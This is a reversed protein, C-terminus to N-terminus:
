MVDHRFRDIVPASAGDPECLGATRRAVELRHGDQRVGFKLIAHDFGCDGTKRARASWVIRSPKHTDCEAHLRISRPELCEEQARRVAARVILEPAIV